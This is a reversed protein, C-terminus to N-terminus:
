PFWDYSMCAVEVKLLKTFDNFICEVIFVQQLHVCYKHLNFWNHGCRKYLTHQQITVAKVYSPHPFSLLLFSSCSTINWSGIKLLYKVNLKDAILALASDATMRWIVQARVPQVLKWRGYTPAILKYVMWCTDKRSIVFVSWVDNMESSGAGQISFRISRVPWNFLKQYRNWTIILGITRLPM